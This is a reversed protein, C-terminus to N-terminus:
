PPPVGLRITDRPGAPPPTPEVRPTDRPPQPPQPVVPEAAPPERAPPEPEPEPPRAPEPRRPPPQAPREPRPTTEAETRAPRDTVPPRAQEAPSPPGAAGPAAAPPVSPAGAARLSDLRATRALAASDVPETIPAGGLLRLFPEGGGRRVMATRTRRPWTAGASLSTLEVWLTDRRIRGAAFSAEEGGFAVVAFTSDRRVEGELPFAVGDRVYRGAVSDLRQTEFLLDGPPAMAFVGNRVRATDEPPIEFGAFRWTGAVEPLGERAELSPRDLPPLPQVRVPAADGCAGALAVLGGGLVAGITRRV